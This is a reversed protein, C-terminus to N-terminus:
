GDRQNQTVIDAFHGLAMGLRKWGGYEKGEEATLRAEHVRTTAGMKALIEQIGGTAMTDPGKTVGNPSFPQKSLAVRVRGDPGTYRVQASGILPLLAFLLTLLRTM